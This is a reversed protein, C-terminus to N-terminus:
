WVKIDGFTVSCVIYLKKDATSYEPSEYTYRQNFGDRKEDFIKIDGALNSASVKIAVDKPASVKVDGFVTNVFLKKEDGSLGIQTADVKADGFTTRITGSQFDKSDLVVNLDGFTNSEIVNEESSTYRKDGFSSDWGEGGKSVTDKKFVLYLGVIILVVPWFNSFVDGIDLIDLNNLLFLLGLIVLVFGWTYNSKNNNSM